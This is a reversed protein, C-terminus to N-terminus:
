RAAKPIVFQFDNKKGVEVVVKEQSKSNWEAPVLEKALNNVEGPADDAASNKGNSSSAYLRVLYEGPPLGRESPISFRGADITAGSQFHVSSFEISGQEVPQGALEVTGSVAQRKLPDEASCGAALLLLIGATARSITVRSLGGDTFKM